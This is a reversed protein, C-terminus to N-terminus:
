CVVTYNSSVYAEECYCDSTATTTTTTSANNNVVTIVTQNITQAMNLNTANLSSIIDIHSADIDAMFVEDERALIQYLSGFMNSTVSPVLVISSIDNPLSKHIAASLESFFFTEGFEWTTVDFFNRVETVIATKIQNDTLTTNQSKIVKFTAQLAPIARSGFLLKIKGPHLVITDSIMKNDLLYNYSTRLDLPTPETPKTATSDELWRKLSLYYGKPIVVMDIINSPAPDVLHYRPSRHLWAFNLGSRGVFRRHLGIAALSDQAFAYITDANAPVDVWEADSSSRQQYVYENVAITLKSNPQNTLNTGKSFLYIKNSVTATVDEGWASSALQNGNDDYVVVDGAGVWYYIPLTLVYGTAPLPTSLSSIDVPYKPKVINALGVFTVNDDVNLGPPYGTNDEDLPMVSLRNEDSLGINQGSTITSQGVVYYRWNQNLVGTRNCNVNAQLITVEDYDSNLTDYDIVRSSSNANWFTTTPSSFMLRKATRTVDYRTEFISSQNVTILPTTIFAAPWGLGGGLVADSLADAPIDSAKIAYWQYNKKNYYLKVSAPTPPPTLAAVLRTKEDSTFIRRYNNIPVNAGIIQVFLDTSSLLPEIYTTILTNADVVETRVSDEIDEFYLNGDDGFLKVDEYTGSPDHWTIYRSDGAFTRNLARLKLISPDQLMFVNYDEGNVMRDQSYYVAPANARVHEIDEAASANQLSNILSYEFTFTQTRGFTDVYTFSSKANVIAAQPVVVDQDLSTRVWVDFTGQPIDAFEGDGFLIRLSNNTLTELEYKNRKPNTNFIVNQAHALDVEVWEGSKGALTETRYPLVSQVDVTAGTTVDINNVWVDIDNVNQANVDYHQNPTIGDFTTRFRQLTGQKTYAFFGTTDSADGLGDQGYMLTFNSNNAPRREVIGEQSDYTVPVLEMPVSQGNVTAAYTFVGTNLPVLNMSYLEFLVDQIQFRDTPSVTGFEQELVRNMVLIFQDKWNTNSTDNWRVARNALDIGNADVVSETTTVSTIKVLGRAPLPRAPTYSIFKALRLISDKRQATSIFNEHANVDIRYALLEAVYSFVEVIAIFESSEIFDNFTEPFYLKVYDLISQKITTFDFAAFNINQFATYVREWSEARAVLRSM